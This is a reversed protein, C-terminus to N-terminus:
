HGLRARVGAPWTEPDLGHTRMLALVIRDQGFGVCATHVTSGDAFTLGFTAAFHDLHYNFSACATPEPGAIPVVLEFKLEEASQNAALMRGQRGFFPDTANEISADLGLQGLLELGRQAWGVRWEMVEEPTGIRVLEHQRFMQQRAPDLSPEHRFVWTGGMDISAGAPELPGQAAIAPYVPYCAAPLMMLDTQSQFEGWEEHAAARQGQVLADAETGDFSFISAALHPFKGIYGNSELNRRPVVPPFHCRFAGLSSALTSVVTELRSRVQEYVASRGYLGPVGSEILHGAAVLERLFQAQEDSPAMPM